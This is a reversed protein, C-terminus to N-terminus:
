LCLSIHPFLPSLTFMFGFSLAPGAAFGYVLFFYSTSVPGLACYLPVGLGPSSALGRPRIRGPVNLFRVSKIVMFLGFVGGWAYQLSMTDESGPSTALKGLYANLSLVMLGNVVFQVGQSLRWEARNRPLRLAIHDTDLAASAGAM